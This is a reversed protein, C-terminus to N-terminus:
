DRGPRPGDDDRAPSGPGGDLEPPSGTTLTRDCRANDLFSSVPPSVSTLRLSATRLSMTADAEFIPAMGDEDVSLVDSLDLVLEQAGDEVTFMSLYTRLRGATHANLRGAIALVVSQQDLSLFLHGPANPQIPILRAATPANGDKVVHLGHRSRAAM